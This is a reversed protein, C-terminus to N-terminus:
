SQFKGWNLTRYSGSFLEKPQLTDKLHDIDEMQYMEVISTEEVIYSIPSGKKSNLLETQKSKM